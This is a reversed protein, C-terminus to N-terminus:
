NAVAQAKAKPVVSMLPWGSVRGASNSSSFTM